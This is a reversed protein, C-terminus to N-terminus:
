PCLWEQEKVWIGQRTLFRKGMYFDHGRKFFKNCEPCYYLTKIVLSHKKDVCLHIRWMKHRPEGHLKCNLRTKEAYQGKGDYFWIDTANLREKGTLETPQM